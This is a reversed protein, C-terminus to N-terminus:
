NCQVATVNNNKDISLKKWSNFNTYDGRFVTIGLNEKRVMKMFGDENEENTYDVGISYDKLYHKVFNKIDYDSSLYLNYFALFKVKNNIQYAYVTGRKTVVTFVLDEVNTADQSAMIGGQQLDDFSFVPLDNANHCHDTGKVTAPYFSSTVPAGAAGVFPIYEFNDTATAPVKPYRVFCKENTGNTNSNNIAFNKLNTLNAKFTIDNKLLNMKICPDVPEQDEIFEIIPQTVIAPTAAEPTMPTSGGGGGSPNGQSPSSPENGSPSPGDSTGGPGGGPCYVYEITAPTSCTGIDSCVGYACVTIVVKLCDDVLNNSPTIDDLLLEPLFVSSTKSEINNVPVGNKLNAKDGENFNYKM